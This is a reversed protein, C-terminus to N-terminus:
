REKGKLSLFWKEVSSKGPPFYSKIQKVEGLKFYDDVNFVSELLSCKHMEM